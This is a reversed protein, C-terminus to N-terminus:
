VLGAGRKQETMKKIDEKLKNNIAMVTPDEIYETMAKTIKREIADLITKKNVDIINKVTEEKWDWGKESDYLVVQYSYGSPNAKLAFKGNDYVYHIIEPYNGSRSSTINSSNLQIGTYRAEGYKSLEALDTIFEQLVEEVLCRKKESLVKNEQRITENIKVAENKLKQLRELNRLDRM